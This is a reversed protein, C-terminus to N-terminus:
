MRRVSHSLDLQIQRLISHTGGVTLNRCIIRNYEEEGGDERYFSSIKLHLDYPSHKRLRIEVPMCPNRFIYCGQAEGVLFLPPIVLLEVILLGNVKSNYSRLEQMMLKWQAM